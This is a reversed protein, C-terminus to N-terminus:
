SRRKTSQTAGAHPADADVRTETYVEPLDDSNGTSAPNAAQGTFGFNTLVMGPVVTVSGGKKVSAIASNNVTLGDPLERRERM